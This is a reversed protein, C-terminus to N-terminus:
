KLTSRTPRAMALAYQAEVYDPVRRARVVVIVLVLVVVVFVVVCFVVHKEQQCKQTLIAMDAFQM